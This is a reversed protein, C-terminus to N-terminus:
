GPTVTLDLPGGGGSRRADAAQTLPEFDLEVAGPVPPRRDRAPEVPTAAPRAAVWIAVVPLIVALYGALLGPGYSVHYTLDSRSLPDGYISIFQAPVGLVTDPIRATVGALIAGLGAAGGVAALRLRAALDARAVTVGALVLLAIMGFNYALGFSPLDGLYGTFTVTPDLNSSSANNDTAPRSFIITQWELVTSAAFAVAGLGALAIGLSGFRGSQGPVLLRELLRRRRTPADDLQLEDTV